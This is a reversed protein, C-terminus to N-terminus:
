AALKTTVYERILFNSLSRVHRPVNQVEDWPMAGLEEWAGSTWRCKPAVHELEAVAQQTADAVNPNLSAMVKDMLRGVARIGAGHMLRSQTPPLGWAEPFVERVASWYVVLTRWIGEMDTEGTALNRYPFLCGSSSTISDEIMKIISTDTIVAQRREEVDSSPRRIMGVFPSDPHRQLQDCIASPLRKASLRSSIPIAVEPLLEAVLGRPLPKSNNVRLFQDRQTELSDTVFASVPIPLDDRMVESLALARQQGDVIWAPKRRGTLPIQLTGGTAFGDTAKAGRSSLFRVDPDLALIISNPFVIDEGELYERIDKVHSRVGPRQYGMLKGSDDREVRSIDAVDLIESPALTFLYVVNGGPQEFRLARREILRDGSM